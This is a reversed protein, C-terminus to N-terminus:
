LRKRGSKSLMCFAKVEATECSRMVALSTDIAAGQKIAGTSWVAPATSVVV